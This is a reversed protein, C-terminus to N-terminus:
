FEHLLTKNIIDARSYEKNFSALLEIDRFNTVVTIGTVLPQHMNLREVKDLTIKSVEPHLVDTSAETQRILAGKSILYKIVKGERELVFGSPIEYISECLDVQRSLDSEMLEFDNLEIRMKQFDHTQRNVMNFAGFVMTVVISMIVMGALVDVLTFASLKGHEGMAIVRYTFRESCPNDATKPERNTYRARNKIEKKRM